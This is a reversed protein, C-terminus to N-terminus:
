GAVEYELKDPLSFFAVILYILGIFLVILGALLIITLLAGIFLLMGSTNFMKEGTIQSLAELSRRAYITTFIGAIWAFLFFLILFPAVASASQRPPNQPFIFYMGMWGIYLSFLFVSSIVTAVFFDKFLSERGTADALKKLAVLVLVLGAFPMVLICIAGIGGLLKIERLDIERREMM